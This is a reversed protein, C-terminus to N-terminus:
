AIMMQGGWCSVALGGGLFEGVLGLGVDVRGGVGKRGCGLIDLVGGGIHSLLGTGISPSGLLGALSVQFLSLLHCAISQVSSTFRGRTPSTACFPPLPPSRASAWRSRALEMEASFFHAVLRRHTSPHHGRAISGSRPSSVLVGCSKEVLSVGQGATETPDVRATRQDGSMSRSTTEGGISTTSLCVVAM